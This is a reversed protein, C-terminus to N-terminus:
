NLTPPPVETKAPPLGGTEALTPNRPRHDRRRRRWKRRKAAINDKDAQARPVPQHERTRGRKRIFIAWALICLTVLVAASAVLISDRAGPNAKQWGLLTDFAEFNALFVRSMNRIIKPPPHLRRRRNPM